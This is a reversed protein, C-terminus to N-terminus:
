VINSMERIFIHLPLHNKKKPQACSYLVQIKESFVTKKSLEINIPCQFYMIVIDAPRTSVQKVTDHKASFKFIIYSKTTGSVTLTNHWKLLFNLITFSSGFHFDSKRKILNNLSLIFDM